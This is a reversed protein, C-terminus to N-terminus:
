SLLLPFGVSAISAINGTVSLAGLGYKMAKGMDFVADKIEDIEDESLDEPLIVDHIQAFTAFMQKYSAWFKEEGFDNYKKYADEIQQLFHKIVRGLEPSITGYKEYTVLTKRAVELAELLKESSTEYIGANQLRDAADEIREYILESFHADLADGCSKGFNSADFVKSARKIAEIYRTKTSEKKFSLSNIDRESRACLLVFDDRFCAYDEFSLHQAIDEFVEFLKMERAVIARHYTPLNFSLESAAGDIKRMLNLLRTCSDILEVEDTMPYDRNSLIDYLIYNYRFAIERKTTM